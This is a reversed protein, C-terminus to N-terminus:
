QDDCVVAPKRSRLMEARSLAWCTESRRRPTGCARERFAGAVLVVLEIPAGVEVGLLARDLRLFASECRANM